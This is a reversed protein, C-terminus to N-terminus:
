KKKKKKKCKKKKKKAAAGAKGKGKKKRKKCKKTTAADAKTEIDLSWGATLNSAGAGGENEVFLSWTGNPKTGNYSALANGYPQAQPAPLSFPVPSGDFDSTKFSGSSNCTGDDSLQTAASDDFTFSEGGGSLDNGCAFRMLVTTQGTPGVLLVQLDDLEGGVGAVTATVKSVTGTLGSVSIPSPYPIAPSDAPVLINSTNVFHQPAAQAGTAFAASGALATAVLCGLVSIRSRSSMPGEKNM